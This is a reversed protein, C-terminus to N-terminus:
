IVFTSMAKRYTPGRTAAPEGNIALWCEENLATPDLECALGAHNTIENPKKHNDWFSASDCSYSQVRSNVGRLDVTQGASV